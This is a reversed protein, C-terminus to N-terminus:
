DGVFANTQILHKVYREADLWAREKTVGIGFPKMTGTDRVIFHSPHRSNPIAYLEANPFYRKVFRIASQLEPTKTHSEILM